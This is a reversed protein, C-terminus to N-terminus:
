LAVQTRGYDIIGSAFSRTTDINLVYNRLPIITSQNAPTATIRIYSLGGTITIPAFGTITVVGTTANYFGIDNVQINGDTDVVQLTNTELKNRIICISNNFTFTNSNIIYNV